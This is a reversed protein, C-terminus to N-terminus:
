CLKKNVADQFNKSPVTFTKWDNSIDFFEVEQYAIHIILGIWNIQLSNFLMSKLGDKFSELQNVKNQYSKTQKGCVNTNRLVTLIYGQKCNKLKSKDNRLHTNSIKGMGTKETGMEIGVLPNLYKEKKQFQWNDILRIEGPDLIAIDIRYPLPDNTGYEMQLPAISLANKLYSENSKLRKMQKEYRQYLRTQIPTSLEPYKILKAALRVQLSKESFHLLPNESVELILEKISEKVIKDFM